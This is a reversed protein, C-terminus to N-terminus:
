VAHGHASDEHTSEGRKLLVARTLRAAFKHGLQAERRYAWRWQAESYLAPAGPYSPEWYIKLATDNAEFVMTEFVCPAGGCFNHDLGLWVTSVFLTGIRSEAVVRNPTDAFTASWEPASMPRLKQDYAFARPWHRRERRIRNLYIRDATAKRRTPM